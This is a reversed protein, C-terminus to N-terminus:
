YKHLVVGNDEIVRIRKNGDPGQLWCSFVHQLTTETRRGDDVFRVLRMMDKVTFAKETERITQM